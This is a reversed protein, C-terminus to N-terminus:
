TLAARTGRCWTAVSSPRPPGLFGWNKISKM